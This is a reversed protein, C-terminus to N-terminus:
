GMLLLAAVNRDESLLINYTRCAARTDMVEVGIGKALFGATYRPEPFRLTRGTGIVIIGPNLEDLRALHVPKLDEFRAPLDETIVQGPTVIVSCRIVEGNVTIEGPACADITNGEPQEQAFRMVAGYGAPRPRALTRPGRGVPSITAAFGQKGRRKETVYDIRGPYQLLKMNLL